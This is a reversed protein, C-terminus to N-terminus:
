REAESSHGRLSYFDVFQVAPDSCSPNRHLGLRIRGMELRAAGYLCRLGRDVNSNNPHGACCGISNARATDVLFPWAHAHSFITLHGAVSLKLYM